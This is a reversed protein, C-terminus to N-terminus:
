STGGVAQGSPEGQRQPPPLTGAPAEAQSVNPSGPLEGYRIRITNAETRKLGAGLKLVWVNVGAQGKDEVEIAFELECGEFKMVPRQGADQGAAELALRNAERIQGSIHRLLHVLEIRDEAM